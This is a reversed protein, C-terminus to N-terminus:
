QKIPQTVLNHPHLFLYNDLGAHCKQCPTIGGTKEDAIFMEYGLELLLRISDHVTLGLREPMGTAIECYIVPHFKALSHRGGSFVLNEAGEVDVKMFDLRTLQEREVVGDLTEAQILTRFVKRDKATAGAFFEKGVERGLHGYAHGIRKSANKIPLFLDAQGQRNSLAARIVKVNRFSRTVTELLTYNYELPEFAFVRCTGAHLQAVQKAFEGHNAGVDFVVANAPIHRALSRVMPALKNRFRVNLYRELRAIRQGLSHTPVTALSPCTNTELSTPNM